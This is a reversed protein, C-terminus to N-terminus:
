PIVLRTRRSLVQDSVTLDLEGKATPVEVTGGRAFSLVEGTDPDRVMVMPHLAPNWTLSVGRATRQAKIAEPPAGLRLQLAPRMRIAAPTGPAMFRLSELQAARMRDLPVAFAFHRSGSPDDAVELADFSLSFVTAGALTRGEIRYAGPRSPLVPRTVVQFAPELVAQGNVIRGWVLLCPQEEQPARAQMATGVARYALVAEYTYDSVWPDVCYGMIDSFYTPRLAQRPVDFGFVGILGGSYPYNPDPGGPNGCPAHHRNWTHGLEHAAVRSRDSARDYGLAAPAGLYGVGAWTPNPGPNVVGYYHASAGEVIRLTYVENLVTSWTALDSSLAANTTTTYVAHVDASIARLPYIRQTLDLFTGQNSPSVDGQLGNVRQRVPVFRIAFTPSARVDQTRPAGSRPFSNDADDSEPIANDPDVEALISLGSQILSGPVPVNWSLALEGEQTSTPTSASPAPVNFTRTVTGGRFFRVRVAPMATNAENALVFVRLYGDRGTVLPVTNTYTQTGQTLHLGDIRLNLSASTIPGYGVTAEATANASVEIPQQAPTAAYTIGGAVVDAATVQYTGPALATLTGTGTLLQNYGNPGTVTVAGSIGASLGSITIALSGTTAACSVAFAVTVPESAVVTASRPNEGNVQCNAALGSLAVAYTGVGLRAVTHTGDVAIPQPAGGDISVVYGDPDIAEGSTATTVTLDGAGTVCTVAFSVRVTDGEVIAVNRPNEGDVTCNRAVSALSVSHPGVSLKAISLETNVGVPQPTGGDVALVYGDPDVDFGTSTTTVTLVGSTGPVETCAVTFTVLSVVGVTVTISAPNETTLQCNDPIGSLGVSHVGPALDSIALSTVPGIPQAPGGDVSVMYSDPHPGPGTTVTNVQLTGLTPPRSVCGVEFSVETEGGAPATVTRPNTGTLTCNATIGALEITHDGAAINALPITATVGIPQEAGGDVAVAYGDQDQDSGSTSTTIRITSTVPPPETCRVSFALAAVSSAAVVVNRPNNGQVVCNDAVGSLGISQTGPPISELTVEASVGLTGHANGNLTITYGDPDPSTGSTASAVRVSGTTARCTVHFPVPTTEGVIIAVERPNAGSVSCNAAVGGLQVTYNGATVGPKELSAASGIPEPPQDGIQITYGDPDPETGTTSTTVLLTGTTPM